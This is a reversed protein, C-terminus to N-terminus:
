EENAMESINEELLEDEGTKKAVERGSRSITNACSYLLANNGGKARDMKVDIFLRFDDPAHPLYQARAQEVLIRATQMNSMMCAVMLPTLETIRLECEGAAKDKEDRVLKSKDLLRVNQGQLAERVYLPAKFSTSAAAAILQHERVFKGGM